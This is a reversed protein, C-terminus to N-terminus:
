PLINFSTFNRAQDTYEYEVDAVQAPPPGQRCWSIFKELAGAEGEAEIDVSGDASNRVYGTIGLGDAKQQASYRFGVDQVQGYIKIICHKIM